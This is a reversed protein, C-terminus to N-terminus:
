SSFMLWKDNNVSFITNSEDIIDESTIFFLSTDDEIEQQKENQLLKRIDVNTLDKFYNQQTMWAFLVCCMVTDDNGDEAEYSNNVAVFRMLEYITMDDNLILKQNEVLSKLNSCGFRKTQKTTRLGLKTSQSFGGSMIQVGSKDDTTTTIINEYELDYHLIDAVQQGIDNTEILVYARNYKEAASHIINPYLLPAITNCRYTAVVTYPVITADFITFASYDNGLGRATDVTMFYVHDKEVDKYIKTDNRIHIPQEFVLSRLVDPHILTASSGVFETEFEVRFQEVSTNRITEQKWKENRGPTESWHISIRKYDNRGLESDRWMKYFLNLGNPTSTILVKTTQGSSIVPYTASFFKEQMNNPVFAFEDLYVLNYSGGRAGSATTSSAIIKSKNELEINRKNWEIIGQQLWKPLNEYALQIRSMIEQAQTLKHALIAITFDENFLVYWLMLGVIATTNHTPIYSKTCLYLSNPSDVQICRGVINEIPEINQITRSYVYRANSLTQKQNALKSPHRAVDFKDRGVTFSLRVSGTPTKFRNNIFEKRTVKLGLSCLLTYVDEILPQNKTTLQIQCQGNKAVHGDTDMLGQLLAIRNKVSNFLFEHPIRKSPVHPSKKRLNYFSLSEGLPGSISQTFVNKRKDRSADSSFKIGQTEYFSKHDSHCTLTPGYSSGDGLWVGLIYPDIKTQQKPYNVPLTNPIYYAFDDHGRKNTRKWRNEYLQKTSAQIRRHQFNTKKGGVVSCSPNLRDYVVWQHDECADVFSGDDFTIRYAPVNQEHSVFVVNCLNGLEDFVQDGIQLDGMKQFGHPTPIVEENKLLKGCQRPMKCIVFRNTVSTEIIKKQYKFPKFNVLGKDVNIIKVYNEIFYLPDRSCKAFERINEPTFEIAIDTKKLHRNGHYATKDM